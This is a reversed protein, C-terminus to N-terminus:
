EFFAAPKPTTTVQRRQLVSIWTSAGLPAEDWVVFAEASVCVAGAASAGIGSVYSPSTMAASAVLPCDASAVGFPSIVGAVTLSAAGSSVGVGTSVAASAAFTAAGKTARAVDL